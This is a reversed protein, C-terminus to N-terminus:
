QTMTIGPRLLRQALVQVVDAARDAGGRGGGDQEIDRRCERVQGAPDDVAIELRLVDQEVGAV